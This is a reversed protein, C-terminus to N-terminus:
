ADLSYRDRGGFSALGFIIIIDVAFVMVSWLPHAPIMLMQIIANGGALTIGLWRGWETQRWVGFAAALQLAGVVTLIWGWTNLDGIVYEVGRVYFRSDGIAAIGYVVNLFGVVGLMIGAFLLWGRGPDVHYTPDDAPRPVFRRQAPGATAASDGNPM